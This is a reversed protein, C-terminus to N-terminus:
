GVPTSPAGATIRAWLQELRRDAAAGIDRVTACRGVVDAPPFLVPDDRLEPALLRRAAENPTAYGNREVTLRAVEPDLLAEIAAHALAPRECGATIAATTTWLVAGEPPVAYGLRPHARVASAAPGSWAHHAAVTGDLVPTVFDDSDFRVVACARRELLALAPALAQGDTANVDHGSALLAAGIVERLEGLLGVAVGDPPDLLAAWGGAGPLQERDYLYGTTGFALPVSFREGPDYVPRRAWSALNARGPLLADDLALLAGRRALREVLYDSPTVVDYREGALLREELQENTSIAVAEVRVGIRREVVDLAEDAPMGPWVLMRLAPASV